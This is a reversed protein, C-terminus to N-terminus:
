DTVTRHWSPPLKHSGTSSGGDVRLITGTVWASDPGALWLVAKAVDLVSGPRGLPNSSVIESYEDTVPNVESGVPIFGPAVANVRIGHGGLELASSMTLMDVASKSTSYASSGPRSRHAATSSINVVSAERGAGIARRSLAVTALMPARVNLNQVADWTAADLELFPTSPYVGAVNVLVDVPAIAWAEAVAAAPAEADRLDAVVCSVTATTSDAISRAAEALPDRRYDVLTVDAGQEAFLRAVAFGIGSAAGTVVAHTM